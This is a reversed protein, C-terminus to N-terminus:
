LEDELLGRARPAFTRSVLGTGSAPAPPPPQAILCVNSPWSSGSKPNCCPKTVRIAFPPLLTSTHLGDRVGTMLEWGLDDPM